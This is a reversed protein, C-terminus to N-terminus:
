SHIRTIGHKKLGEIVIEKAEELSYYVGTIAGAAKWHRLKSAQLPTPKNDGLKGEIEIRIGHSCGTVDPQGKNNIHGLRKYAMSNPLTNIWDSVKKNLYTEKM